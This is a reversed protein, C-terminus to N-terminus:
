KLPQYEIKIYVYDGNRDIGELATLTLGSQTLNTVEYHYSSGNVRM